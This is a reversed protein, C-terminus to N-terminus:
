IVPPHIWWERGMKWKPQILQRHFKVTSQQSHFGPCYHNVPIVGHRLEKQIGENLTILWPYFCTIHIEITTHTNWTIVMCWMISIVWIRFRDAQHNWGRRLIDILQSLSIGLICIYIYIISISLSLSFYDMWTETVVLLRNRDVVEAVGCSFFSGRQLTQLSGRQPQPLTEAPAGQWMYMWPSKWFM